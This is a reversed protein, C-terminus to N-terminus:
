NMDYIMGRCQIHYFKENTKFDIEEVLKPKVRWMLTLERTNKTVKNLIDSLFKKFKNLVDEERKERINDPSLWMILPKNNLKDDLVRQKANFVPLPPINEITRYGEFSAETDIIEGFKSDFNDIITELKM